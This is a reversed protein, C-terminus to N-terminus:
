GSKLSVFIRADSLSDSTAKQCQASMSEHAAFTQKQCLASMLKQADINAKPPLASTMRVQRDHRSKVRDGDAGSLRNYAM